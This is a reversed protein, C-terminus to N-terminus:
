KKRATLLATSGATLGLLIVPLVAPVGTRPNDTDTRTVVGSVDDLIDSIDPRSAVEPISDEPSVQAFATVGLSALLALVVALAALPKLVTAM